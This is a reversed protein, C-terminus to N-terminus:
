FPLDEDEGDALDGSTVPASATNPKNNLPKDKMPKFTGNRIAEVTDVTGCETTWGTRGNMEWEKNRFIVGVKLGKFKKENCDYHYGENSDELAYIFNNFQRRNSEFYQSNEDPVILRYTGKWKKDENQNNDFQNKFFNAHDGEAIDFAVVVVSGWSYEELKANIIKAVYGGAPLPTNGGTAKEAKQGKYNNIM